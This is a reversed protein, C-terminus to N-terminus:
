GTIAIIERQSVRFRSFLKRRYTALCQRAITKTGRSTWGVKLVPPTGGTAGLQHGRLLILFTLIAREV